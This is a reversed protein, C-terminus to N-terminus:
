LKISNDFIEIILKTGFKLILNPFIWDAIISVISTIDFLTSLIFEAKYDVPLENIYNMKDTLNMIIKGFQNLFRSDILLNRNISM